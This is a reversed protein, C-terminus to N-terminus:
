ESPDAHSEEKLTTSVIILAPYETELWQVLRAVAVHVGQTPRPFGVEALGVVVEGNARRRLELGLRQRIPGEHIYTEILLKGDALSRYAEIFRVLGGDFEAVSPRFRRGIEDLDPTGRLVVHPMAYEQPIPFSDAAPTDNRRWPYYRPTRGQELAVREYKTTLRGPDSLVFPTGARGAFHSSRLLTAEIQAAYDDHDTAIDLPGGEVLRSALLRLFEDDILRREDHGKKM